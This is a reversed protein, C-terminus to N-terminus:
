LTRDWNRSKIVRSCWNWLLGLIVTVVIVGIDIVLWGHENLWAQHSISAYGQGLVKRTTGVAVGHWDYKKVLWYVTFCLSLFTALLGLFFLSRVVENVSKMFVKM